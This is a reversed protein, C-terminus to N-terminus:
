VAAKRVLGISLLLDDLAKLTSSRASDFREKVVDLKTKKLLKDVQEEMSISLEDKLDTAVGGLKKGTRKSLRAAQRKTDDLIDVTRQVYENQQVSEPVNAVISKVSASNAKKLSVAKARKRSAAKAKKSPTAKAKAAIVSKSATSPTTKTKKKNAM